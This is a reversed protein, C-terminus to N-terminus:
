NGDSVGIVKPIEGAFVVLGDDVASQEVILRCADDSCIVMKGVYNTQDDPGPGKLSFRTVVRTVEWGIM